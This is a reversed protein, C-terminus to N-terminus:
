DVVESFNHLQCVIIVLDGKLGILFGGVKLDDELVWLSLSGGFEVEVEDSDVTLV